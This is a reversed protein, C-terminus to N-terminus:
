ILYNFVHLNNDFKVARSKVRQGGTKRYRNDVLMLILKSQLVELGMYLSLQLLRLIELWLELHNVDQVAILLHYSDVLQWVERHQLLVDLHGTPGGNVDLIAPDLGLIVLTKIRYVM